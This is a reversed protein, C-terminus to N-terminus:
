PLIRFGTPPILGTDSVIPLVVFANFLSATHINPNIYYNNEVGGTVATVNTMTLPISITPHAANYNTTLLPTGFYNQVDRVEFSQGQNLGINSLDVNVVSNSQWNFVVLNARGREYKNTRLAVVNVTPLNTTYTSNLDLSHSNTWAVFGLL